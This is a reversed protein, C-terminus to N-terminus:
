QSLHRVDHWGRRRANSGSQRLQARSFGLPCATQERQERQDTRSQQVTTRQLRWQLVVLEQGGTACSPRGVFCRRQGLLVIQGCRAGRDSGDYMGVSHGYGPFTNSTADSWSNKEGAITEDKGAFWAGDGFEIRDSLIWANGELDSGVM